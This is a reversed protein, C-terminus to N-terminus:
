QHVTYVIYMKFSFQGAPLTEILVSDSWPSWYGNYSIGDLKVRVRVEYKAGPQLRRLILESSARTLEVQSATRLEDTFTWLKLLWNLGAVECKM